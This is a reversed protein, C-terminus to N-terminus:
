VRRVTKAGAPADGNARELDARIKGRAFAVKQAATMKKFDPSGDTKTPYSPSAIVTAKPAPLPKGSADEKKDKSTGTAPGNM